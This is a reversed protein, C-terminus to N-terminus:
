SGKAVDMKAPWAFVRSPAMAEGCLSCSCCSLRARTFVLMAAFCEALLGCGQGGSVTVRDRSNCSRRVYPSHHAALTKCVERTMWWPRRGHSWSVGKGTRWTRMQSLSSNAIVEFGLLPWTLSSAM